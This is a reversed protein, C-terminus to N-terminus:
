RAVGPAFARPRIRKNDLRGMSTEAVGAAAPKFEVAGMLWQASSLTWSMVGGDSGAQTSGAMFAFAGISLEDYRETQNAGATIDAAAYVNDCVLGDTVTDAVTITATASSGSTPTPVAGIPVTQHVGTMSIVGLGHGDVTASLTNTVTQAGTPVISEVGHYGATMFAAAAIADWDETLANGAYTTGNSTEGGGGSSSGCAAFVARDTGTATHTLSLVGDGAAEQASTASDFVVSNKFVWNPAAMEVAQASMLEMECLSGKALTIEVWGKISSQVTEGIRKAGNRGMVVPPCYSLAYRDLERGGIGVRIGGTASGNVRYQVGDIEVVLVTDLTSQDDWNLPDAHTPRRLAFSVAATQPDIDIAPTVIRRTILDLRLFQQRAFIM